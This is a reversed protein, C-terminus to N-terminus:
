LLSMGAKEYVHSPLRPAVRVLLADKRTVSTGSEEDMNLNEPAMGEPLFIDCTHLLQALGFEVTVLGLNYGVCMRRGAGFPLLEFNQGKVDMESNLFRDPNFDLPNKWLKPDRGISYVNVMVLCKAPIDYGDIKQAAENFHPFLTPLTPHLRFTEKVMCRLYPLDRLDSEKALRERGVVDDLEKQVKRLVEPNRLLEALAWLMTASSTSSSAVIVDQVAAKILDDSVNIKNEKQHAFLVDVFDQDKESIVRPSGDENRHSKLIANYFNDAEHAIGRLRKAVGGIDLRGLYPFFEEALFFKTGGLTKVVAMFEEVKEAKDKRKRGYYKMSFNFLTTQNLVLQTLKVDLDVLAGKQGDSLIEEMTNLVEQARVPQSMELRKGTVLEQSIVKRMFRWKDGNPQLSTSQNEYALIRGAVFQPRSAFHQDQTKLVEMALEPSSVAVMPVSGMKLYIIPGYKDAMTCLSRHPYMGLLHLHGLLPLGRPGPPLRQKNGSVLRFILLGAIAIIVTAAIYQSSLFSGAAYEVTAM